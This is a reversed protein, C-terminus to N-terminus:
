PIASLFLALYLKPCIQKAVCLPGVAGILFGCQHSKAFKIEWFTIEGATTKPRTRSNVGWKRSWIATKQFQEQTKWEWACENRIM